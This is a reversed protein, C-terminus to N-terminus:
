ARTGQVSVHSTIFSELDEARYLIMRGFRAFNPGRGARRWRRLTPLSHHLWEAAQRETLLKTPFSRFEANSM